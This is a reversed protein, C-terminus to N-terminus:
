PSTMFYLPPPPPPSLFYPPHTVTEMWTFLSPSLRARKHSSKIKKCVNRCWLRGGTLGSISFGISTPELTFNEFMSTLNLSSSIALNRLKSRRFLTWLTDFTLPFFSDTLDLLLSLLAQRIALSKKKLSVPHAQDLGLLLLVHILSNVDAASSCDFCFINWTMCVELFRFM